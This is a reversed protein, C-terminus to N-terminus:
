LYKRENDLTTDPGHGPFIALNDKIAKFNELSVRMAAEDSDSFDTRGIGRKFVFDGSFCYKKDATFLLCGATHGPVATVEFDACNLKLIEGGELTKIEGDYHPFEGEFHYVARNKTDDTLKSEDLASIYIPAGTLKALEPLGEIHDFHGHTLLIAEIVGGTKIFQEASSIATTPADILVATKGDGALYGNCEFKETPYIPIIESLM